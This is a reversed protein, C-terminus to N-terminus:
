RSYRGSLHWRPTTARASCLKSQAPLVAMWEFTWARERKRPGPDEGNLWLLDFVAFVHPAISRVVEHFLSRGESDLVVIEGDIIADGAVDAPIAARLDAFRKYVHGNRSVLRCEGDEIYALSRFGDHKIEYLWEPDDFASRIEQLELASVTPIM